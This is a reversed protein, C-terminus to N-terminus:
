GLEEWVIVGTLTTSTITEGLEVTFSGGGPVHIRTEPTPLFHWPVLCSWQEERFINAPTNQTTDNFTVASDAAPYSPDLPEETVATGGSATGRHLLIVNREDTTLNCSLIIEHIVVHVNSAALLQIWDQAATQTTATNTASYMRGM